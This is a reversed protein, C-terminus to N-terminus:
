FITSQGEYERYLSTGIVRIFRLTTGGPVDRKYYLIYAKSNLDLDAAQLECTVLASLLLMIILVYIGRLSGM